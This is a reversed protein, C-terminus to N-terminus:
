IQDNLLADIGLRAGGLIGSFSKRELAFFTKISM